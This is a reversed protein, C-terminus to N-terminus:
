GDASMASMPPMSVHVACLCLYLCLCMGVDRIVRSANSWGVATFCLLYDRGEQGRVPTWRLLRSQGVGRSNPGGGWFTATSNSQTTFPAGTTKVYPYQGERLISQPSEFAVTARADMLVRRSFDGGGKFTCETRMPATPDMENYKARAPWEMELHLRSGVWVTDVTWLQMRGGVAVSCNVDGREAHTHAGKACVSPTAVPCTMSHVGDVVIYAGPPPVVNARIEMSLLSDLPSLAIAPPPSPPGGTMVAYSAGANYFPHLPATRYSHNSSSFSTWAWVSATQGLVEMGKPFNPYCM